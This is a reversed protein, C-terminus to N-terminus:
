KENILIFYIMMFTFFLIDHNSLIVAAIIKNFVNYKLNVAWGSDTINNVFSPTSGQPRIPV